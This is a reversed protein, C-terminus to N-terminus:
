CFIVVTRRLSPLSNFTQLHPTGPNQLQWQHTPSRLAGLPTYIPRDRIATVPGRNTTLHPLNSARYASGGIELGGSVVRQWHSNLENGM